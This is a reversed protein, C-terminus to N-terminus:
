VDVQNHQLFKGHTEAGAVAGAFLTTRGGAAIDRGSVRRWIGVGFGLWGPLGADLGTPRLLGPCFCNVVVESAPVLGALQGVYTNVIYKGDAYRSTSSFNQKEDLYELVSVNGPVPKTTFVPKKSLGSSVWTLHTPAKRIVATSRLLPLLSLSILLPTYCNVPAMTDAGLCLAKGICREHAPHAPSTIVKFPGSMAM